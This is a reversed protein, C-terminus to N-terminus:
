VVHIPRFQRVYEHQDNLVTNGNQVWSHAAFPGTRVGVVWHAAFGSRALFGILALSDLLCQARATFLLPRLREYAAVAPTMAELSGARSGLLRAQRM